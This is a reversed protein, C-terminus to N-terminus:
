IAFSSGTLKLYLDELNPPRINLGTIPINLGNLWTIAQQADNCEVIYHGGQNRTRFTQPVASDVPCNVNFPLTLIHNLFHAKLLTQPPQKVVIEGANIIAVKDCLHQAEEMYHTTLVITKGQKKINSLLQWFAMRANPDLGTTPEDLFILQPDNILSLALLLRQRQGGSIQYHFQDIADDLLCLSILQEIDVPNDYFSAFLHLCDRVKLYDPLATMQFQIGIHKSYSKSLPLGKYLVQGTAPNKIGELIELTTSKGAGNPGLLGFCSGQEVNISVNKVVHHKAYSYNLNDAILISSM